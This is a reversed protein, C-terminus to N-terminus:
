AAELAPKSEIYRRHVDVYVERVMRDAEAAPMFKSSFGPVDPDVCCRAAAVLHAILDRVDEDGVAIRMTGPSIAAERQAQENLESHTTLGPCSVITNSQGLSIMHAFTPDLSDFFRQFTDRPLTPMDVTFLPAPLGLFMHRKCLKHNPDNALANCRVRVDPHSALFRALTITNICKAVM